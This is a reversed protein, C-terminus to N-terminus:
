AASGKESTQAVRLGSTPAFVHSAHFESTVPPLTVSAFRAKSLPSRAAGDVGEAANGPVECAVPPLRWADILPAGTGPLIWSKWLFPTAFISHTGRLGSPLAKEILNQSHLHLWSCLMVGFDGGPSGLIPSCPGLMSELHALMAGVYGWSPRVQGWCLGCSPWCLGLMAGLHALMPGSLSNCGWCLPLMPWGLGLKSRVHASTTGASSWTATAFAILDEREWIQAWVACGAPPTLGM